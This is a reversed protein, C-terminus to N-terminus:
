NLLPDGGVAIQLPVLIQGLLMPRELGWIQMKYFYFLTFYLTIVGEEEFLNILPLPQSWSNSFLSFRFQTNQRMTGNGESSSGPAGTVAVWFFMESRPVHTRCLTALPGPFVGESEVLAASALGLCCSAKGQYM